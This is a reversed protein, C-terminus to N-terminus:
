IAPLAACETREGLLQASTEKLINVFADMAPGSAHPRYDVIYELRGLEPLGLEVPIERLQAPVFHSGFVALGLGAEAAAIIAILGTSQTVITWTRGSDRLAAITVDRTESPSRYTALPVHGSADLIEPCGVWVLPERWLLQGRARGPLRKAVVIDLEDNELGDLLATSLGTEFVLEFRPHQKQFIALVSSLKATAFDEVLGLRLSGDLMPESLQRRAQDALALISRAYVLMAEGYSTLAVGRALRRLLSRGIRAELRQVQQSVTSQALGLAQAARTFSGTRAVAEFARVQGLDFPDDLIM